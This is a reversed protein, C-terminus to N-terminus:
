VTMLTDTIQLKTWDIGPLLQDIFEGVYAEAHVRNMFNLTDLKGGTCTCPTLIFGKSKDAARVGLVVTGASVPVFKIIPRKATNTMIHLAQCLDLQVSTADARSRGNYTELPEILLFSCSRATVVVRYYTSGSAEQCELLNVKIDTTTMSTSMDAAPFNAPRSAAHLNNEANETIM